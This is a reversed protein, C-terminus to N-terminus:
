LQERRVEAVTSRVLDDRGTGPEWVEVVSGIEDRHDGASCCTRRLPYRGVVPPVPDISMMLSVSSSPTRARRNSRRTPSSITGPRGQSGIPAVPAGGVMQM